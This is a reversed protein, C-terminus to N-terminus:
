FKLWWLWESQGYWSTTANQYFYVNNTMGIWWFAESLAYWTVKWTVADRSLKAGCSEDFCIWWLWEAQWYWEIVTWYVTLNLKIFWIAESEIYNTLYFTYGETKWQFKYTPTQWTDNSAIRQTPDFNLSFINTFKGPVSIDWRYFLTIYCEQLWDLKYWRSDLPCANSQNFDWNNYYFNNLSDSWINLTDTASGFISIATATSTPVQNKPNFYTLTKALRTSDWWWLQIKFYTEVNWTNKIKYTLSKWYALDTPLVTSSTSTRTSTGFNGSSADNSPEWTEKNSSIYTFSLNPLIYGSSWMKLSVPSVSSTYESNPSTNWWPTYTPNTNEIFFKAIQTTSWTFLALNPDSRGHFTITCTTNWNIKYWLSDIICDSSKEWYLNSAWRDSSLIKEWWIDMANTASYSTADSTYTLGTWTQSWTWIITGSFADALKLKFYAPWNKRNSITYVLKNDVWYFNTSDKASYWFDHNSGWVWTASVYSILLDLIYDDLWKIKINVPTSSSTFEDNMSNLNRWYSNSSETNEFIFKGFNTDSSTYNNRSSIIDDSRWVFTILCTKGPYVRFWKSDTVCDPTKKFYFNKNVRTDWGINLVNTDSILNSETNYALTTSSTTGSSNDAMKVKFYASAPSKNDLKFTLNNEIGYLNDADRLSKWLSYIWTSVLWAWSSTTSDYTIRLDVQFNISKWMMTIPTTPNTYTINKDWQWNVSTNNSEWNSNLKDTNEIYWKMVWLSWSSYNQKAAIATDSRYYFKINCATKALVSIEWWTLQVCWDSLDMYMNKTGDTWWIDIANSVDFSSAQSIYRWSTNTTGSSYDQFKVKFKAIWDSKNDIKYVSTGPDGYLVDQTRTSEWFDWKAYNVWNWWVYSIFVEDARCITWSPCPDAFVTSGSWQYIITTGWSGSQAITWVTTFSRTESILEKSSNVQSKTKVKWYYTKWESLWSYNYKLNSWVSYSTWELASDDSIYVTYDNNWWQTPYWSLTGSTPLGFSWITPYALIVNSWEYLCQPWSSTSRIYWSKCGLWKCTNDFDWWEGINKCSYYYTSSSPLLNGNTCIQYKWWLQQWINSWSLTLINNQWDWIIVWWSLTCSARSVTYWSSTPVETAYIDQSIDNCQYPNGTKDYVLNIKQNNM